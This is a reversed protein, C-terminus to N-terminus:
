THDPAIPIPVTMDSYQRREPSAQNFSHNDPTSTHAAATYSPKGLRFDHLAKDATGTLENSKRSTLSTGTLRAHLAFCAGKVHLMLGRDLMLIYGPRSSQQCPFRM